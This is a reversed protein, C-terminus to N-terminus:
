TYGSHTGSSLRASYVLVSTSHHHCQSHLRTLHVRWRCHTLRMVKMILIVAYYVHLVYQIDNIFPFDNLSGHDIAFKNFFNFVNRFIWVDISLVCFIYETDKIILGLSPM